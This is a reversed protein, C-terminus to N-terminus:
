GAERHPSLSSGTREDGIDRAMLVAAKGANKADRTMQLAAQRAADHWEPGKARAMGASFTVEMGPILVSKRLEAQLSELVERVDESRSDPVVLTFEDGGWRAAIAGPVTALLKALSKIARDGADWNEKEAGNLQRLNDIDLFVVVRGGDLMRVREELGRQNLLGTLPDHRALEEVKELQDRMAITRDVLLGANREVHALRRAMEITWEYRVDAQVAWILNSASWRLDPGSRHAFRLEVPVPRRAARFPEATVDFRVRRAVQSISLSTDGTVLVAFDSAAVRGVYSSRYPAAQELLRSGLEALITDGAESGYQANIDKLGIVGVLVVGFTREGPMARCQLDLQRELEYM